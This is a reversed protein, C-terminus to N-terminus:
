TDGLLNFSPLRSWTSALSKQPFSVVAPQLFTEPESEPEPEPDSEPKPLKILGTNVSDSFTSFTVSEHEAPEIPEPESDPFVEYEGGSQTYGRQSDSDGEPPAPEDEVTPLAGWVSSDSESTGSSVATGVSGGDGSTSAYEFDEATPEDPNWDDISETKAADKAKVWKYGFYLLALAILGGVLLNTQKGESSM